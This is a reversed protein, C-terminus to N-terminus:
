PSMGLKERTQSDLRGTVPVKQAEQFARIAARTEPSVIGNVPGPHMGRDKLARQLDRVQQSDTLGVSDPSAGRPRAPDAAPPPSGPVGRSPDVEVSTSLHELQREGIGHGPAGHAVHELGGDGEKPSLTRDAVEAAALSPSPM